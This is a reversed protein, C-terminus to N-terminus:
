SRSGVESFGAMEDFTPLTDVLLRWAKEARPDEISGGCQLPGPRVGPAALTWARKVTLTLGTMPVVVRFLPPVSPRGDRPLQLRLGEFSVDVIHSPAGNVTANLPKITKRPSRRGPRGDFMAMSVLCVLAARNVPRAIYMVRPGGQARTQDAVDLDGIVITPTKNDRVRRRSADHLRYRFAFTFDAIFLDFGQDGVVQATEQLTTCTVTEFGEAAMWGAVAECEAPDPTAVIIRPRHM